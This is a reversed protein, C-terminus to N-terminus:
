NKWGQEAQSLVYAAVDRIEEESLRKGYAPMASKGNKVQHAIAEMSDMNYKELADKGLHKDAIVTNIGGRHCQTCSAKGLFVNKGNELDAAERTLKIESKAEATSESKDAVSKSKAEATSESQDAVSETESATTQEMEQRPQVQSTDKASSNGCGSVFFAIMVFVILLKKWNM